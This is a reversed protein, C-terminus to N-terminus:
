TTNDDSGGLIRRYENYCVVKFEPNHKKARAIDSWQNGGRKIYVCETNKYTKRMNDFDRMRQETTAKGTLEGLQEVTTIHVILNPINLM